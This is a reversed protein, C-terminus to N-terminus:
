EAKAMTCHRVSNAPPNQFVEYPLNSSPAAFLLSNGSFSAMLHFAESCFVKRGVGSFCNIFNGDPKRYFSELQTTIGIHTTGRNKRGQRSPRKKIYM